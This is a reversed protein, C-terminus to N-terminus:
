GGARREVAGAPGAHSWGGVDALLRYVLLALAGGLATDLARYTAVNTAATGAVQMLVVVYGTISITFLAYSARFIAYGCWVFLLLLSWLIAPHDGIMAIIAGAIAAGALTAVIRTIGTVFTERYEPKLVLLTTMPFWYGRPLSALRYVATAFALAAALRM